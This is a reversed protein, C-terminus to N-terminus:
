RRGARSDPRRAGARCGARAAASSRPTRVPPNVRSVSYDGRETDLALCTHRGLAASSTLTDPNRSQLNTACFAIHDGAAGTRASYGPAGSQRLCRTGGRPASQSESRGNLKRSDSVATHGNSVKAGDGTSHRTAFYVPRELRSSLSWQEAQAAASRRARFIRSHRSVLTQGM